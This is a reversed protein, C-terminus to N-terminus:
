GTAPATQRTAPSIGVATNAAPVSVPFAVLKCVASSGCVDPAPLRVINIKAGILLAAVSVAAVVSVRDFPPHQFIYAPLQEQKGILVQIYKPIM